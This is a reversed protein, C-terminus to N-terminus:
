PQPFISPGPIKKLQERLGKFYASVSVSSREKTVNDRFNASREMAM